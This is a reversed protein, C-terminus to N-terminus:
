AADSIPCAMHSEEVSHRLAQVTSLELLCASLFAPLLFRASLARPGLGLDGHLLAAVSAPPDIGYWNASCTLKLRPLPGRTRSVDAPKADRGASAEFTTVRSM